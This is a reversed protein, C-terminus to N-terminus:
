MLGGVFELLRGADYPKPLYGLVGARNAARDPDYGSTIAVRVAPDIAQLARLTEGGSMGPMSLDLLVLRIKGMHQQYLALAAPGDEAALSRIGGLELMDVLTLRVIPDDDVILVLGAAPAPSVNAVAPGDVVTSADAVKAADAVIPANAAPFLLEFRAGRGAQGDGTPSGAGVPSGAGAPSGVGAPSGAGAPSIVRMGGGLKEVIGLVVPLGLGYGSEKRSYFPEFMRAATEADLGVGADQVCLEVYPGAPMPGSAFLLAASPAAEPEPLQRLRTGLTVVGEGGHYAEAANLLLNMVVQQLLGADAMVPPLDPTLMTEISIGAPLVVQFLHINAQVLGNLEIPRTERTERGSFALMQRTLERAQEAAQIARQVHERAPAGAPLKELALSSHGLMAVLLNSFDHAVGGALMGLSELKQAQRLALEARKEATVDLALGLVGSVAGTEDLLPEVHVLFYSARWHIEYSVREGQLAQRHGAIARQAEEDDGLLAPLSTGVVNDPFLNLRYMGAGSMSRFILQRDTSWLVAPMQEVLLRLRLSSEHLEAAAQAREGAQRIAERSSDSALGVAVALLLLAIIASVRVGQSAAYWDPDQLLRILLSHLPLIILATIAVGWRLGFLWGALMVPLIALLGAPAGILPYLILYGIAILLGAIALLALRGARGVRDAASLRHTWDHRPGPNTTM